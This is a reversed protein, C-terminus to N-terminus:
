RELGEMQAGNVRSRTRKPGGSSDGRGPYLGSCTVQYKV